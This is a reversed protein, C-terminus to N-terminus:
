RKEEATEGEEEGKKAKEGRCREWWREKVEEETERVLPAVTERGGETEEEKGGRMESPAIDREGEMEGRFTCDGKRRPRRM